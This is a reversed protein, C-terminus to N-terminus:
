VLRGATGCRPPDDLHGLCDALLGTAFEAELHKRLAPETGVRFHKSIQSRTREIKKQGSGCEALDRRGARQRQQGECEAIRFRYESGEVAREAILDVAFQRLVTQVSEAVAQLVAKVM